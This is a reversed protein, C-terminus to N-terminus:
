RESPFLAKKVRTVLEEPGFPKLVYGNGGLAMVDRVVQASRNATMMLVPVTYGRQRVRKLVELGDIGPMAIDLLVLDPRSRRLLELAERGERATAVEFGAHLLIMEVLERITNDDEVVLISQPM